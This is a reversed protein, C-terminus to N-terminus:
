RTGDSVTNDSGTVKVINAAAAGTVSNGSGSVSFRSDPALHTGELTNSSGSVSVGEANNTGLSWALLDDTHASFSCTSGAFDVGEEAVLTVDAVISNSGITISGACYIVGESVPAGALTKMSGSIPDTVITIDTSFYNGSATALTFYDLMSRPAVRLAHDAEQLRQGLTHNSVNIVEDTAYRAGDEITYTDGGLRFRGGSKVVGYFTNDAGLLNTSLTGSSDSHTVAGLWLKVEIPSGMQAQRAAYQAANYCYMTGYTVGQSQADYGKLIGDTGMRATPAPITTDFIALEVAVLAGSAYDSGISGSSALVTEPVLAKTLRLLEERRAANGGADSPMIANLVHGAITVDFCNWEEVPEQVSAIASETATSASGSLFFDEQAQQGNACPIALSLAAGLACLRGGASAPFDKVFM